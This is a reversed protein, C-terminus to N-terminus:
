RCRQMLSILQALELSDQFVSIDVGIKLSYKELQLLRTSPSKKELSLTTGCEAPNSIM